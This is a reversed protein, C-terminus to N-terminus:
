RAPRRQRDAEALARVERDDGPLLAQAERDAPPEPQREAGDRPEPQREAGDRPEARGEPRGQPVGAQGLEAWAATAPSVRDPPVLRQPRRRRWEVAAAVLLGGALVILGVIIALEVPSPGSDASGRHRAPTAPAPRRQPAPKTAEHPRPRPSARRPPRAPGSSANGRRALRRATRPGVRGDAALGRARQFRRVAGETRPGFRGDVPGPDVGARRLHRQLSRVRPSGHPFDTGAGPGLAVPARLASATRPGVVGDAVLGHAAQFRRVAAETSPGFRGDVPGPDIGDARLRRQFARVRDSGDIRALGSGRALLVSSRGAESAMAPAARYLGPLAALAAVVLLWRMSLASM